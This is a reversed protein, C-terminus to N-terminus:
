AAEWCKCDAGHWRHCNAKLAGARQANKTARSVAESQQRTDWTPLRWGLPDPAWLHHRVLLEATKRTGHIFPLADFPLLGDTGHGGAYGMSCTYSWAAQYRDGRPATRDSLLALIKDHTALNSDLRVWPLGAM